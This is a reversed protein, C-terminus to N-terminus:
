HEWTLLVIAALALVIGCVKRLSLPEHWLAVGLVVPLLVYLGTLPALVTVEEGSHSLRYYAYNAAVFLVGIAAAAAHKWTWALEVDRALVAIALCYGLLNCVLITGQTMARGVYSMLFVAIGWGFICVALYWATMM